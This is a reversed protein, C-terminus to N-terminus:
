TAEDLPLTARRPIDETLMDIPDATLTGVGPDHKAVARLRYDQKRSDPPAALRAVNAM